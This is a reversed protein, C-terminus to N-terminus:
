GRGAPRRVRPKVYDAPPQEATPPAGWPCSPPVEGRGSLWARLAGWHGALAARLPEGRELASVTEAWRTAALAAQKTKTSAIRWVVRKLATM